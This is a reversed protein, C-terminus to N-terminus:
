NNYILPKLQKQSTRPMEETNFDICVPLAKSAPVTIAPLSPRTNIERRQISNCVFLEASICFVGTPALRSAISELATRKTPLCAADNVVM